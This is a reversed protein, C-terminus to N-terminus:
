FPSALLCQLLDTLSKVAEEEHSGGNLVLRTMLNGYFIRKNEPLYNLFEDKCVFEYFAKKYNFTFFAELLRRMINGITTQNDSTETADLTAYQFTTEFLWAYENGYTHTRNEIKKDILENYNNNKDTLEQVIKQFNYITMLDHSMVLIKSNVNGNYIKGIQWRLFSMVGMKNEVDFSSIPDDIVLLVEQKYQEEKKIHDFLHAFYYCLAIINREGISVHGPKVEVGNSKLRYCKEGEELVLRSKSFYIYALCENIFDLALHTQELSQQLGLLQSKATQLDNGKKQVVTNSKDLRDLANRYESLENKYKNATLINNKERLAEAKNNRDNIAENYDSVVKNLKEIAANVASILSEVGLDTIDNTYDEFLNKIRTDVIQRCKCLVDNYDHIAAKVANCKDRFLYELDSYKYILDLMQSLYCDLEAKYDEVDHNLIHEIQSCIEEKEKDTIPRFCFPCITTKEKSFSQRTLNLKSLDNTVIRILNQERETLEPKQVQRSLLQQLKNVDLPNKITYDVFQIVTKGASSCFLKYDTDFECKKATYQEDNLPNKDMISLLLQVTEKSVASNKRLANPRCKSDKEAWGGNAILRTRLTNFWYSPSSKDSNSNLKDNDSKLSDYESQLREIEIKKAAIKAAIDVQDGLMVIPGLADDDIKVYKEIFDENFVHIARKQDENLTQDLEITQFSKNEEPLNPNAFEAMARAITSKGSGNRGFLVNIRKSFINNLSSRSTFFEGKIVINHVNEFM